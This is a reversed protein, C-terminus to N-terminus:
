RGVPLAARRETLVRVAETDAAIEQNLEAIARDLSEASDPDLETVAIHAECEERHGVVLKRKFAEAFSLIGARRERRAAYQELREIMERLPQTVLRLPAGDDLDACGVALLMKVPQAGGRRMDARLNKVYESRPARVGIAKERVALFSATVERAITALGSSIGVVSVTIDRTTPEGANGTIPQTNVSTRQGLHARGSRSEM